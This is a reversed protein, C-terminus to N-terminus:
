FRLDDDDPEPEEVPADNKRSETFIFKFVDISHKSRKQGTKDTWQDLKLEGTVMIGSGKKFYKAINTATERYATCDIFMPVDKGKLKKNVAIGFKAIPVQSPTYSLDIDKTIHGAVEIYNHFM